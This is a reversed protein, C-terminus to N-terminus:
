RARLDETPHRMLDTDKMDEGIHDFRHQTSHRACPLTECGLLGCQASPARARWRCLLCGARFLPQFRLARRQEGMAIQEDLTVHAFGFALNQPADGM